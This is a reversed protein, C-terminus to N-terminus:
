MDIRWGCTFAWNCSDSSLSIASFFLWCGSSVTICGVRCAQLHFIGAAIGIDGAHVVLRSKHCQIKDANSGMQMEETTPKGFKMNVNDQASVKM